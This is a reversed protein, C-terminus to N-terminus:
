APKVKKKDKKKKSRDRKRLGEMGRKCVEAYRTFFSELEDPQVVTSIKVKEGAKRKVPGVANSARIIIPLPTPPDLDWLPNDAIKPGEAALDSPLNGYALRKQSLAVTGHGNAHCDKYLKALHTFFQLSTLADLYILAFEVFKMM